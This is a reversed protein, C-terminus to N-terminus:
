FNAYFATSDGTRSGPDVVMLWGPMIQRLYGHELLREQDRRGLAASRLVGVKDVGTARLRELSSAIKENLSSM